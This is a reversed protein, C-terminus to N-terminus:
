AAWQLVLLIVKINKAIMGALAGDHFGTWIRRLIWPM